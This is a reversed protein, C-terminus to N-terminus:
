GSRRRTRVHVAGSAATPALASRHIWGRRVLLARIAKRAGGAALLGLALLAFILAMLAHPRELWSALPGLNVRIRPAVGALGLREVNVTSYDTYGHRAVAQDLTEFNQIKPPNQCDVLLRERPSLWAEAVVHPSPGYLNLRQARIGLAGAMCIFARTDDGCFGLGTKLVEAASARLFSRKRVPAGHWTVHARIYDRLAQVKERPTVAGARTVVRHAERAVYRGDAASQIAQTLSLVLLIGLLYKGGRTRLARLLRSCPNTRM